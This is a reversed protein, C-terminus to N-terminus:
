SRRKTFRTAEASLPDEPWPHKPYRGRMDKRVDAYTNRWFHPLDQTVQLPRQAPSLLHIMLPQTDNLVSPQGEYGFMEQLKVALVPPNQSYDIRISSGSPVRLHTPLLRNLQQQQEWSLLSLLADHVNIKKLERQHRLGTLFPMLWEDANSLLADESVDPWNADYEHALALRQRLTQTADTWDLIKLGQKALLDKWALAWDEDTLNNLRKSDLTVAGLRTQEEALLQGNDQWNVNIHRSLMHPHLDTLEQLTNESLPAASRILNPQGATVDACVLWHNGQLPSDRFVEAGAGSALHYSKGSSRLRAIRDPFACGLLFGIDAPRSDTTRRDTPGSESTSAQLLKQLRKAQPEVRNRWQGSGQLRHIALSLEDQQRLLAPEQLLAALECASSAMGADSGRLIMNALRPELSLQECRQGHETLKG